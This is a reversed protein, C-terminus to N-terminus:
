LLEKIKNELEEAHLNKAVINGKRDVLITAPIYHVCYLTGIDAPKNPRSFRDIVSKWPIGNQKLANLWADKKSDDSVGLIEFGKDKYAEYLKKLSPISEICPHCWSAWFDILVVKGKLSSLSIDKGDPDPLAFDPAPKGPQINLMAELSKANEKYFSSVKVEEAINQMVSQLKDLSGYYDNMVFTLLYASVFSTNNEKIFDLSMNYSKATLGERMESIRAEAKKKEEPDKIGSLKEMEKKLDAYLAEAKQQYANFIDNEKSGKVTPILAIQGAKYKQSYKATDLEVEVKGPVLWFGASHKTEPFNLYVSAPYELKGSINFEENQVVAHGLTDVARSASSCLLLVKAGNLGKAKGKLEFNNEGGFRFASLCIAMSATLALIAISSFVLRYIKDKM